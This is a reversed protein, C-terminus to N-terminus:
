MWPIPSPLPEHAEPDLELLEVVDVLGLAALVDVLELEVVDVPLAVPQGGVDVVVEDGVAEGLGGATEDLEVPEDGAPEVVLLELEVAGGVPM